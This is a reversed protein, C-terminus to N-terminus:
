YSFVARVLNYSMVLQYAGKITAHKDKELYHHSEFGANCSISSKSSESISNAKASNKHGSDVLLAPFGVLIETM